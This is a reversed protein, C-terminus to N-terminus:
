GGTAVPFLQQLADPRGQTAPETAPALATPLLVRLRFLGSSGIGATLEGDVLASRERMGAIGHGETRAARVAGEEVSNTVVISVAREGWDFDIDVPETTDGHRLANTLAEQVVRYMAVGVLDDVEREEGYTSVQVTLGLDRVGDILADLDDRGPLPGSHSSRLEHLLTRVDGLASRATDAIAELAPGVTTPNQAAAYRAGDAQAIVVALSHAVVDHVDRAVRTREQELLTEREAGEVREQTQSLRARLHGATRMWRWGWAAALPVSGVLLMLVGGLAGGGVIATGLGATLVLVGALRRNLSQGGISVLFLVAAVTLLLLVDGGSLGRLAVSGGILILGAACLAIAVEPRQRVWLLSVVIPIATLVVFTDASAIGFLCAVVYLATVGTVALWARPSSDLLQPLQELVLRRVLPRVEPHRWGFGAALPLLCVIAAPVLLMSFHPDYARGGAATWLVAGVVGLGALVIAGRQHRPVDSLASGLIPIAVAAYPALNPVASFSVALGASGLAVALAGLALATLPRSRWLVFTAGLAISAVSTVVGVNGAVTFLVYLVALTVALGLRVSRDRGLRLLDTVLPNM